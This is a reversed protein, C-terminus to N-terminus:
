KEIDDNNNINLKADDTRIVNSTDDLPLMIQKMIEISFYLIRFACCLFM